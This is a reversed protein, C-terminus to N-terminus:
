RAIPDIERRGADSEIVALSFNWEVSILHQITHHNPRCLIERDAWGQDFQNWKPYPRFSLYQLIRGDPSDPVNRGAPDHALGERGQYFEAAPSRKFISRVKQRGRINGEGSPATAQGASYDLVHRGFILELAAGM